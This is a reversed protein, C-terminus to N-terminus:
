VITDLYASARAVKSREIQKLRISTFISAFEKSEALMSLFSLSNEKGYIAKDTQKVDGDFFIRTNKGCRGLLLKIHNRKLNQAENIYFIADDLNRGRAFALPLIEIKEDYIMDELMAQGGLIDIFTGMFISEKEMINGPLHGIERSDEAYSNNPLFVIKKVKEEALLKLAYHMLIYSKGSGYSGTACIIDTGKNLAHILCSQEPNKATVRCMPSAFYGKVSVNEIKNNDVCFIDKVVNKDDLVQIYRKGLVNDLALMNMTLEINNEYLASYLKDRNSKISDLDLINYLM